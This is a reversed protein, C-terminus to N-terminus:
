SAIAGGPPLPVFLNIALAVLWFAVLAACFRGWSPGIRGHRHQVQAYWTTVVTVAATAALGAVLDSGTLQPVVVVSGLLAGIIVLYARVASGAGSAAPTM